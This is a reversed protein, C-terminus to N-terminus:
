KLQRSTEGVARAAAEAAGRMEEPVPANGPALLQGVKGSRRDVEAAAVLVVGARIAWVDVRGSAMRDWHPAPHALCNRAEQGLERIQEVCICLEATLGACELIM